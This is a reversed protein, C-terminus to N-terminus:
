SRWGVSRAWEEIAARRAVRDAPARQRYRKVEARVEEMEKLLPGLGVASRRVDVDRAAAIPLPNLEGHRDWDLQTGYQQPRGELMLIRDELLAVDLPDVEGRREAARLLGLGRRMVDPSWIAHYLLWDAAWGGGRNVERGPWGVLDFIANLREAGRRCHGEMMQHHGYFLPDETSVAAWIARGQEAMDVLEWSLDSAFEHESM